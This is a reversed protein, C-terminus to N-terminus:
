ECPVACLRREGGVVAPGHAPARAAVEAAAELSVEETDDLRAHLGVQVEANLAAHVRLHAVRDRDPNRGVPRHGTAVADELEHDAAVEEVEGARALPLAVM